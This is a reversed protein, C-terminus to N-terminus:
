GVEKNQSLEAAIGVLLQEPLPQLCTPCQGLQQLRAVYEGVLRKLDEDSAALEREVQALQGQLQQWQQLLDALTRAQQQKAEAEQWREGAESLNKLPLLERKVSDIDAQVSNWAQVLRALERSSEALQQLQEWRARLEATRATAALTQDLLQQERLLRQWEQSLQELRQYERGLEEAKELQPRLAVGHSIRKIYDEGIELRQQVNKWENLLRELEARAQERSELEAALGQARQLQFQLDELQQYQELQQELREKEAALRNELQTLRRVDSALSSQAADIIHVGSLRGIAKARLQSIGSGELLFPADLQQGLHLNLSTDRDIQLPEIGSLQRVELPVETGFGELVVQDQGTTHLIYRNKRSSRERTISSGDSWILTVRAEASGVRIFDTGRPENFLVWRIARMIASKGQDSPGVIVNLEPSLELRTQQHSQFNEIIVEKLYRM